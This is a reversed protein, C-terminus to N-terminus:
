PLLGLSSDIYKREAENGHSGIGHLHGKIKGAVTCKIHLNNLGSYWEVHLAYGIRILAIANHKEDPSKFMHNKMYEPDCAVGCWTSILCIEICSYITNISAKTVIGNRKRGWIISWMSERYNRFVNLRSLVVLRHQSNSLQSAINHWSWRKKLIQKCCKIRLPLWSYHQICRAFWIRFIIIVFVFYCM